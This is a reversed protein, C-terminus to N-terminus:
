CCVVIGIEMDYFIVCHRSTKEQRALSGNPGTRRRDYRTNGSPRVETPDIQLRAPHTARENKLRERIGEETFSVIAM